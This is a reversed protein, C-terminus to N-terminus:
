GDKNSGNRWFIESVIEDPIWTVIKQLEAMRAAVKNPDALGHIAYGAIRDMERLAAVKPYTEIPVSSM